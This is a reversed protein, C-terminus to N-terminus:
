AQGEFGDRAPLFVAGLLTKRRSRCIRATQRGRHHASLPSFFFIITAVSSGNQRLVVRSPKIDKKGDEKLEANRKLMGALTKLDVNFMAGKLPVDYVAIAYDEGDLDPADDNKAKIQAARM